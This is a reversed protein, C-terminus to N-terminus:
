LYCEKLQEIKRAKEEDWKLMPQTVAAFLRGVYIGTLIGTGFGITAATMTTDVSMGLVTGFLGGFVVPFRMCMANYILEARKYHNKIDQYEQLFVDHSKQAHHGYVSDIAALRVQPEKWDRHQRQLTDYQEILQDLSAM